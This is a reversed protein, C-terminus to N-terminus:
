RQRDTMVESLHKGPQLNIQCGFTGLGTQLDAARAHIEYTGNPLLVVLISYKARFRPLSQRLPLGFLGWM